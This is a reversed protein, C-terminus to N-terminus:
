TRYKNQKTKLFQDQGLAFRYGTEPSIFEGVWCVCANLRQYRLFSSRDWSFHITFTNLFSLIDNSIWIDSITVVIISFSYSSNVSSLCHALCWELHELYTMEHLSCWLRSPTSLLLRIECIFFSLKMFNLLKSLTGCSSFPFLWSAFEPRGPELTQERFIREAQQPGRVSLKQIVQFSALPLPFFFLLNKPGM